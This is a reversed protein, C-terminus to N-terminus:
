QRSGLIAMAQELHACQGNLTLVSWGAQALEGFLRQKSKQSIESSLQVNALLM